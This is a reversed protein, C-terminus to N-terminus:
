RVACEKEFRYRISHINGAVQLMLHLWLVPLFADESVEASVELAAQPVLCAM